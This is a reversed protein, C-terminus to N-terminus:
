LRLKGMRAIVSGSLRPTKRPGGPLAATRAALDDRRFLRGNLVVARAAHVRIDARELRGRGRHAVLSAIHSDDIRNWAISWDRFSADSPVAAWPPLLAQIYGRFHEISAHRAALAGDLGVELPVHETVQVGLARAVAVVSDYVPRALHNYVKVFDYGAARQRVLEARVADPFELLVNDPHSLPAAEAVPGATIIRPGIM